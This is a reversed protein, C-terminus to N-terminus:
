RSAPDDRLVRDGRVRGPHRAAWDFALAGGWDHGVLIVDDCTSRTSGRTSTARTTPSRYAIDPKGSRGMGILDPALGPRSRPARQRWAHSSTPNGHLFVFPGGDAAEYHITSDLVDITPM